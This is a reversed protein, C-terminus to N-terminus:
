VLCMMKGDVFIGRTVWGFSDKEGDIQVSYGRSRLVKIIKSELDYGSTGYGMSLVNYWVDDEAPPLESTTFRAILEAEAKKEAEIKAKQEAETLPTSWYGNIDNYTLPVTKTTYHSYWWWDKKKGEEIEEKTMPVETYSWKDRCCSDVIYQVLEKAGGVKPLVPKPLYNATIPMLMHFTPEWLHSTKFPNDVEVLTVEMFYYDDCEVDNVRHTHRVIYGDHKEGDWATYVGKRADVYDDINGNRTLSMNLINMVEDKDLTNNVLAKTNTTTNNM